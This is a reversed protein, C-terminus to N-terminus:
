EQYSEYSLLESLETLGHDWGGAYDCISKIPSRLPTDSDPQRLAITLTVRTGGQAPQDILVTGGHITAASRIMTMGLGIGYRGDEIGPQRRYRTFLNAQIDAPIGSGNDQISLSLFNESQTLKAEVKGGKPSFKVANSIMNYIGRELHECSVLGFVPQSIGTYRLKVGTDGILVKAKQFVEEIFASLNCNEMRVPEPDAYRMADAMNSLIRLLQFLGKNIKSAQTRLDCSAELHRNSLFQDTITMVNSLPMRLQQAALAMAQLRDHDEQQDLIFYDMDGSRIVTAGCPIKCVCLNLFLQGSEFKEYSQWNDVILERIPTNQPIQMQAAARNLQIVVGNKVCLVPREILELLPTEINKSEM